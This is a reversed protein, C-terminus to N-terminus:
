FSDFTSKLSNKTETESFDLRKRLKQITNPDSHFIFQVKKPAYPVDAKDSRKKPTEFLNEQNSQM